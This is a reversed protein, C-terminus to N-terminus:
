EVDKLRGRALDAERPFFILHGRGLFYIRTLKEPSVESEEKKLFMQVLFSLVLTPAAPLFFSPDAKRPFKPLGSRFCRLWFIRFGQREQFFFDLSRAGWFYIRTLKEPSV